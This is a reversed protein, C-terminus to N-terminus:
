WWRHLIQFVVLAINVATLLIALKINRGAKRLNENSQAIIRDAKAINREIERAVEDDLGYNM